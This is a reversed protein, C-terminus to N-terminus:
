NRDVICYPFEITTPDVLFVRISQFLSVAEAIRIFAKHIVNISCTLIVDWGNALMIMFADICVADNRWNLVLEM